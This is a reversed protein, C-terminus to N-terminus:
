SLRYLVQSKVQDPGIAAQVPFVNLWLSVGLAEM